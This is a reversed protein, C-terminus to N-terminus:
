EMRFRLGRGGDYWGSQDPTLINARLEHWSKGLKWVPVSWAFGCAFPRPLHFLAGIDGRSEGYEAPYPQGDLEVFLGGAPGGNVVAWGQVRVYGRTDPVTLSSQGVAGTDNLLEIRWTDLAGLHPLSAFDPAPPPQFALEVGPAEYIEVRATQRLYRAGAGGIVLAQVRDRPPEGALLVRAAERDFPLFNLPVGDAAVEPPIRANLVRGGGSSAILRLDPVRLFLKLLRGPVNWELHIRAVLPRNGAPVVLPAGLRMERTELLRLTAFRPAARRRLLLHAGYVGDLDYNRYLALATAPVDLLPHREDFADWDFLIFPPARRPDELFDANAGDLFPTYAQYMQFVPFLRLDLRNAPGYACEMPYVAVPARGIRALLEPPLRDSVLAQASTEELRRRLDPYHLIDWLPTQIRSLADLPHWLRHVQLANRPYWALLPIAFAAALYWADKKRFETCLAVAAWVLPVFLFFIEVHGPERVFSHKFELFLPGLGAFALPWSSAKRWWLLVIAALWAALVLLALNLPGPSGPVSMVASYGSSIDIALRSYRWLADLSPGLVALSLAAIALPLAALALVLQRARRRDQFCIAAAFLALASTASAASSFKIFFLLGCVAAAGGHWIYWRRAALAGGGLLLLALFVLFADGGAYGFVLFSDAGLLLCTAFAALRGPEIGRRFAFCLVLAAFAIWLSVQFLIGEGLNRGIPMPLILYALPGYTYGADKGFV